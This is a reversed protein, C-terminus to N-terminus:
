RVRTVRDDGRRGVERQTTAGNRSGNKDLTDSPDSVPYTTVPHQFREGLRWSRLSFVM